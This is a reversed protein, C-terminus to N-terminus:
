GMTRGNDIFKTNRYDLYNYYFKNNIIQLYNIKFIRLKDLNM